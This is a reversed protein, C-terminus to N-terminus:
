RLTEYVVEDTIATYLIKGDTSMEASMEAIGLFLTHISGGPNFEDVDSVYMFYLALLRNIEVQLQEYEQNLRSADELTPEYLGAFIELREMLIDWYRDVSEEIDKRIQAMEEDSVQISSPADENSIESITEEPTERPETVNKQKYSELPETWAPMEDIQSTDDWTELVDKSDGNRIDKVAQLPLLSDTKQYDELVGFELDEGRWIYKPLIFSLLILGIGIIFMSSVIFKYWDVGKQQKTM